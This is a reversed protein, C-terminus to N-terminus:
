AGGTGLSLILLAIAKVTSKNICYITTDDAFMYVSGSKVHSILDNTFLSFLTPGLVSGQPISYQVM